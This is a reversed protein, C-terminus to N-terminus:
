TLGQILDVLPVMLATVILGLTSAVLALTLPPIIRQLFHTYYEMQQEYTQAAEELARPLSDHTEGWEVLVTLARDFHISERMSQSLLTGQECKLGALQAARAVNRDRLSQVTCSLADITAIKQGTLTAMLTAFEHQGSWQWARGFLPLATRVWHLFRQGAFLFGVVLIVLCFAALGTLVIPISESIRLTYVTVTPLNLGFDDYIDAFMPIVYVALFLLVSSLLALVLLPYALVTRLGRQMKKRAMESAALGALVAPLNGSSTGIAMARQMHKPLVSQMSTLADDLDIGKELQQALHAAVASLRRSTMDDALAQFVEELPVGSAVGSTLHELLLDAEQSSLRGKPTNENKM